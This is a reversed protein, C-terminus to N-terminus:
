KTGSQRTDEQVEIGFNQIADLIVPKLIKELLVERAFQHPRDDKGMSSKFRVQRIRVDNGVRHYNISVTLVGEIREHDWAVGFVTKAGNAEEDM